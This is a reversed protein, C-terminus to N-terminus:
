ARGEEMRVFNQDDMERLRAMAEDKRARHQEVVSPDLMTDERAEYYKLVTSQHNSKEAEVNMKDELRQVHSKLDIFSFKGVVLLDTNDTSALEGDEALKNSVNAGISAKVDEGSLEFTLVNPSINPDHSGMPVRNANMM